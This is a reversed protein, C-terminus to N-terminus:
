AVHRDTLAPCGPLENTDSTDSDTTATAESSKDLDALYAAMGGHPPENAVLEALTPQENTEGHAYHPNLAEVPPGFHRRRRPRAEAALQRAVIFLPHATLAAFPSAM